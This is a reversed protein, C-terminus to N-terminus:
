EMTKKLEEILADAYLVSDDACDDVNGYPLNARSIMAQMAAIAAQIRAQQWDIPKKDDKIFSLVKENVCAWEGDMLVQWMPAHCEVSKKEDFYADVETNELM